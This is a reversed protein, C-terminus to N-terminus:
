GNGNGISSKQLTMKKPFMETDNETWKVKGRADVMNLGSLRHPFDPKTLLLGIPGKNSAMLTKSEQNAL